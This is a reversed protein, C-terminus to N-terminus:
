EGGTAQEINQLSRTQGLLTQDNLQIDDEKKVDIIRSPLFRDAQQKNYLEFKDFSARMQRGLASVKTDSAILSKNRSAILRATDYDSFNAFGPSAYKIYNFLNNDEDKMVELRKDGKLYGPSFTKDAMHKKKAAYFEKKATEFNREDKIDVTIGVLKAAALFVDEPVKDRMKEKDPLIGVMALQEPIIIRGDDTPAALPILQTGPASVYDASREDLLQKSFLKGKYSHIFLDTRGGTKAPVFVDEGIIKNLRMLQSAITTGYEYDFSADFLVKGDANVVYDITRNESPKIDNVPKDARYKENNELLKLGVHSLVKPEEKKEPAKVDVIKKDETEQGCSALLTSTALTMSLLIAYTKKM